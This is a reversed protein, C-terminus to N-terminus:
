KTSLPALPFWAEFGSLKTEGHRRYIYGTLRAYNDLDSHWLFTGEYEVADLWFRIRLVPCEEGATEIAASGNIKKGAVDRLLEFGNEKPKLTLHGSYAAGGDLAQGVIRYEGALFGQLFEVDPPKGCNSGLTMSTAAVSLLLGFQSKRM